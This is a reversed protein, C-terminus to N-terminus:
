VREVTHRLVTCSKKEKAYNELLELNKVLDQSYFEPHYGSLSAEPTLMLDVQNECAWDVCKLLQQLNQEHDASCQIQSFGIRLKGRM